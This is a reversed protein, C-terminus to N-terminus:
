TFRYSMKSNPLGIQTSIFTLIVLVDPPVINRTIISWIMWSLHFHTSQSNIQTAHFYTHVYMSM